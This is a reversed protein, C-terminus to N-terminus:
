APVPPRLERVDAGVSVARGDEFLLFTPYMAIRFAEHVPTQYDTLSVVDAEAPLGSVMRAEDVHPPSTVVALTRAGRAALRSVVQRLEPLSRHCPACTTSVFAVLVTGTGLDSDGVVEGAVTTATFAPLANGVM